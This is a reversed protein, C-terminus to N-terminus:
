LYRSFMEIEKLISVEKEVGDQFMSYRKIQLIQGERIVGESFNRLIFKKLKQPQPEKRGEQSLEPPHKPSQFLLNQSANEHLFMTLVNREVAVFYAGFDWELEVEARWYVWCWVELQCDM